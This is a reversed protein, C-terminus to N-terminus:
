TCVLFVWYDYGLNSFNRVCYIMSRLLSSRALFIDYSYDVICLPNIQASIIGKCSSGDQRKGSCYGSKLKRVLKSANGRGPNVEFFCAVVIHDRSVKNQCSDILRLM